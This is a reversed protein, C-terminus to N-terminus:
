IIYKQHGSNKSRSNAFECDSPITGFAWWAALVDCRKRTYNASVLNQGPTLGTMNITIGADLIVCWLSGAQDSLMEIRDQQRDPVGRRTYVMLELVDKVPQLLQSQLRLAM